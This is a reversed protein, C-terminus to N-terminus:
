RSVEIHDILRVEGFWVAVALLAAQGEHLGAGLPEFNEARVMEVYDIRTGPIAEILQSVCAITEQVSKGAAYAAAGQKLAAYLKPAQSRQEPSLKENRSSIALGNAERVVPVGHLTIPYDLDRVMRRLIALQQIDKKGFVADTPQVMNFLKSVVLCVGAFHGPRKAGCLGRSLQTEEVVMSRDACYMEQPTPTFLVDVGCDECLQIDDEWHQPYTKLDEANDFQVPNLFASVVVCGDEGALDRARRLLEAHGAHLAGMTPVLVRRKGKSSVLAARLERKTIVRRM